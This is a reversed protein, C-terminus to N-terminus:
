TKRECFHASEILVETVYRKVGDKEYSRSVLRGDVAVLLGKSFYKNIFDATSRWAVCNIFDTKKDTGSRDDCALTFSCVSVGNPTKRLEPTSTLRGQLVVTNIM